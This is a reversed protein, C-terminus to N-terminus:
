MSMQLATMGMRESIATIYLYSKPKNHFTTADIMPNKYYQLLISVFDSFALLSYNKQYSPPIYLIHFQLLLLQIM